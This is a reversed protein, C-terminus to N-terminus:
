HYYYEIERTILSITANDKSYKKEIWNNYADFEIEIYTTETRAENNYFGDSKWNSVISKPTTITKYFSRIERKENYYYTCDFISDKSKYTYRSNELFDRNYKELKELTFINSKLEKKIEKWGKQELKITILTDKIKKYDYITSDNPWLTKEDKDGTISKGLTIGFGNQTNTFYDKILRNKKDYIYTNYHRLTDQSYFEQKILNKKDFLNIYKEKYKNGYYYINTSDPYNSFNNFFQESAIWIKGDDNIKITKIRELEDYEIIKRENTFSKDFYIHKTINGNKAFFIKYYLATTDITEKKKNYSYSKIAISKVSGDFDIPLFEKSNSNNEIPKKQSYLWLNSFLLFLLIINLKM